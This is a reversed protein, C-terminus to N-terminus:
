VAQAQNCPPARLLITEVTLGPGFGFLLGWELGEGATSLGREASRRRMEEMAVIVCSSLTNGHQRMVERCVAVKDDRLGLTLVVRDLIDRGGPHVLWFVEENWDKEVMAKKVLSEMSAAVRAAVDRHLNYVLGEERLKAVVMEETEPIIDQWASVMEFLTREGNAEVPDAGVVVAGAADGFLAQGVLNGMHSECPGRFVMSVVESCVVLVRGGPNNEALDKALRLATGGGHCGIHYMMCRKTTLPLGLLKVVEFDAGPMCGSVTTCMVLHTIECAPRGWDAIALRAAAAGLQPVTVDTLNQRVNISPSNYAAVSPNSRLFEDSMHVHRKDIMTKECIDAFKAKLDLLHNSNSIDFYYDPFSSQPLVYPPVATGIGLIAAVLQQGGQKIYEQSGM